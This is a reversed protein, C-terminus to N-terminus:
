LPGVVGIQVFDAYCCERTALAAGRKPNPPRDGLLNALLLLEAVVVLGKLSQPLLGPFVEKDWRCNAIPAPQGRFFPPPEECHGTRSRSVSHGPAVLTPPPGDPVFQGFIRHGSRIDLRPFFHVEAEESLCLSLLAPRAPLVM